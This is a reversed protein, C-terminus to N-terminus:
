SRESTPRVDDRAIAYYEASWFKRRTPVALMAVAANVM